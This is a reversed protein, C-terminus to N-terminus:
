MRLVRPFGGRRCAEVVQWCRLAQERSVSDVEDPWLHLESMSYLAEGLVKAGVHPRGASNAWDEVAERHAERDYQTDSTATM